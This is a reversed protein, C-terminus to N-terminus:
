VRCCLLLVSSPVYVMVSRWPFMMALPFTSWSVLKLCLFSLMLASIMVCLGPYLISVSM